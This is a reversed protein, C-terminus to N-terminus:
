LVMAMGSSGNPLSAFLSGERLLDIGVTLALAARLSSWKPQSASAHGSSAHAQGGHSGAPANYEEESVMGAVEASLFCRVALKAEKWTPAEFPASDPVVVPM